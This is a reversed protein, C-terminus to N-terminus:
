RNKFDLLQKRYHVSAENNPRQLGDKDPDKLMKAIHLCRVEKKLPVLFCFTGTGSSLRLIIDYM